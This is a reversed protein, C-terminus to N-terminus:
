EEKQLRVKRSGRPRGPGASLQPMDIIDDEELRVNIYVPGVGDASGSYEMRAMNWIDMLQAQLEPNVRKFIYAFTFEDLKTVKDATTSLRSRIFGEQEAKLLTPGYYRIITQRDRDGDPNQAAHFLAQVVKPFEGQSWEYAAATLAAKVEPTKKWEYLIRESVGLARALEGYSKYKRQHTPTVIHEVLSKKGPSLPPIDNFEISQM